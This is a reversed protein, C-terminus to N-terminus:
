VTRASLRDVFTVMDAKADKGNDIAISMGSTPCTKIAM